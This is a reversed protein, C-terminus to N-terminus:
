GEYCVWIRQNISYYEQILGLGFISFRIQTYDLLEVLAKWHRPRMKIILLCLSM